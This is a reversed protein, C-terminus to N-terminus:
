KGKKSRIKEYINRGISLVKMPINGKIHIADVPCVEKCCGCAICKNYDVVPPANIDKMSIAGVPCIDVCPNCPIEQVCEIVAIGKKLQEDTPLSLDKVTLVGDKQYSKM